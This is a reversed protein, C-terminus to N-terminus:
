DVLHGQVVYNKVRKAAEASEDGQADGVVLQDQDVLDVRGVRGSPPDGVGVLVNEDLGREDIDAARAEFAVGAAELMARRSASNSALVIGAGSLAPM